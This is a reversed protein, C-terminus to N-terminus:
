VDEGIILNNDVFLQPGGNYMEPGFIHALDWLQFERYYECDMVQLPHFGEEKSQELLKEGEKTLRVKVTENINLRV